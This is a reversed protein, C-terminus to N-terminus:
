VLEQASSPPFDGEGQVMAALLMGTLRDNSASLAASNAASYASNESASNVASWAASYAANMAVSWAVEWAACVATSNAASYAARHAANKASNGTENPVVSWASKEAASRDAEEADGVIFRRMISIAAFLQPDPERGAKREALLAEEAVDCAFHRLLSSADYAWLVTREQAVSKDPIAHGRGHLVTGGLTVLCTIPGPAFNFADIARQSAHFGRRCLIPSEDMRLTEGVVVKRGDDYGLCRDESLFHWYTGEPQAVIGSTKNLETM